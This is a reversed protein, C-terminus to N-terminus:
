HGAAVQEALAMRADDRGLMSMFVTAFAIGFVLFEIFCM